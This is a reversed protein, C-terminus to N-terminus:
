LNIEGIAVSYETRQQDVSIIKSVFREYCEALRIFGSPIMGLLRSLEAIQTIIKTKQSEFKEQPHNM